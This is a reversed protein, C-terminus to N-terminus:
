VQSVQTQNSARHFTFGEHVYLVARGREGGENTSAHKVFILINKYWPTSFSGPYQIFPGTYRRNCPVYYNYLCKKNYAKSYGVQPKCKRLM